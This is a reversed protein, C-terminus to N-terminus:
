NPKHSIRSFKTRQLSTSTIQVLISLNQHNQNLNPQVVATFYWIQKMKYQMEGSKVDLSRQLSWNLKWILSEGVWLREMAGCEEKGISKM